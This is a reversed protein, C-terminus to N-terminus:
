GRSRKASGGSSRPSVPSAPKLFEIPPAIDSEPNLLQAMLATAQQGLVPLNQGCVNKTIDISSHGMAQQIQQLSGGNELLSVAFTHRIDHPRIYRLGNSELFRKYQSRFTSPTFPSGNPKSFVFDTKKFKSDSLSKDIEQGFHIVKLANLADTHIQLYRQSDKTKPTNLVLGSKSSGDLHYETTMRLTRQVYISGSEFDVDGWQLGLIEGIRMGTSLALTIFAYMETGQAAKLAAKSEDITWPPRKTTPDWEGQHAPKTRRVPNSVILEHREASSFIGSLLGRVTNVTKASKNKRMRGFFEELQMSTIDQVPIRGLSPNIYMKLLGRYYNVTTAKCTNPADFELYREAFDKLTQRPGAALQRNDRKTLLERKVQEAEKRTKLFKEVYRTRGNPHKGVPVKVVYRQRKESFYISGNGKLGLKRGM